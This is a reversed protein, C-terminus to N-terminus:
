GWASPQFAVIETFYDNSSGSLVKQHLKTFHVLNSIFREGSLALLVDKGPTPVTSNMVQHSLAYGVIKDVCENTLTRDKVCLTTEVDACELRNRTLFSQVKSINAKAKLIEVDRDLLQKWQSLELDDQPPQIAVKNPFLKTVHKATKAAEKSKDSVRGFSDQFALDLIAAQSYPFKSLFPSGNLKDKRSDAQTQSGIVFVGAPFNELKSKVGHYSYTNGCV